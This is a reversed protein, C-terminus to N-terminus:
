DFDDEEQSSQLGASSVDERALCAQLAILRAERLKLDKQARDEIRMRLAEIQERLCRFFDKLIQNEELAEEASRYGEDDLLDDGAKTLSGALLPLM